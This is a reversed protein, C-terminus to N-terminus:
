VAAPFTSQSGDRVIEVSCPAHEAVAKSVSGILNHPCSRRGHAGVMIRNAEWEVAASIIASKALAKRVDTHVVCAPVGAEIHKRAKACVQQAHEYRKKEISPMIDAWSGDFDQEDIPEVATLVKFETDKPWHRHCVAKVVQDSFISDDVAVVVKM